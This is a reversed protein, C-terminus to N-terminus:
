RSPARSPFRSDTRSWCEDPEIELTAMDRFPVNGLRDPVNLGLPKQDGQCYQDYDSRPPRFLPFTGRMGLKWPYLKPGIVFNRHRVILNDPVRKTSDWWIGDIYEFARRSADQPLAGLRTLADKIGATVALNYEM